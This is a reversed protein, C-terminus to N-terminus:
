TSNRKEFDEREQKARIYQGQLDEIVAPTAGGKGVPLQAEVLAKRCVEETLRLQELMDVPEEKVNFNTMFNDNGNYM